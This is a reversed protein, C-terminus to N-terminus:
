TVRVLGGSHYSVGIHIRSLLSMRINYVLPLLFWSLWLFETSFISYPETQSMPSFCAWWQFNLIRTALRSFVLWDTESNV